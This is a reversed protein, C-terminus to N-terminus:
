VKGSSGSKQDEKVDAAFPWLSEIDYFGRLEDYFIHIIVDGYDALVWKGESYGEVGAAYVGGKKLDKSVSDAIAKVQRDSSGSCVLIYDAVPSHGKMDLLRPDIAKKENVAKLCFM